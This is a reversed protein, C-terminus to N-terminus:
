NHKTSLFRKFKKLPQIICIPLLSFGMFMFSRPKFLNYKISMLFFKQANKKRHNSFYYYGLGFYNESVKKKMVNLLRKNKSLSIRTEKILDSFLKIGDLFYKETDKTISSRFYQYCSLPEDIFGIKYKKAVRLWFDQDENISIDTRFLGVERIIKKRMMVTGTWIPNVTFEFYRYHFNQDFIFERKSNICISDHFFNLFRKERLIPHSSFFNKHKNVYRDSFVFPVDTYRELFDLRKILSDELMIDDADLYSIYKGKAEMIGRNRAGGPGQNEQCTYRILNKEIYFALVDKTNDTSGDDVVIIELDKYTQNLVSEIAETIYQACNHTPIIISVKPLKIKELKKTDSDEL